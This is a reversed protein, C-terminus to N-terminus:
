NVYDSLECESLCYDTRHERSHLTDSYWISGFVYVRVTGNKVTSVQFANLHLFANGQASPKNTDIKITTISGPFLVIPPSAEAKTYNECNPVHGNTGAEMKNVTVLNLAPTRGFNQANLSVRLPGGEVLDIGFNGSGGIGVWPRNDLNLADHMTLWQGCRLDCLDSHNPFGGPKDQLESLCRSVGEADRIKIRPAVGLGISFEIQYWRRCPRPLEAHSQRDYRNAGFVDDGEWGRVM